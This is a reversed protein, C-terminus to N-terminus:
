QRLATVSALPVPAATDFIDRCGYIFVQDYYTNILQYFRKKEWAARTVEPADLIDRLGLVKTVGRRRLDELTPVLEGWVGAPTHDVLFFQPDFVETAKQIISARLAKGKKQDIRLNRMHWIETDVKIISPIKIYDIGAPLAFLTASPCGILMLVNSEPVDRVVWRAIDLTRRLHGLGFGDHSYTVLRTSDNRDM